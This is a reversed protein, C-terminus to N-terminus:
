GAEEDRSDSAGRSELRGPDDVGLLRALEHAVHREVDQEGIVPQGPSAPDLQRSVRPAEGRPIPMATMVDTAAFPMSSYARELPASSKKAFV